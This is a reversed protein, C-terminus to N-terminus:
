DDTSDFPLPDIRGHIWAESKFNRRKLSGFGIAYEPATDMNGDSVAFVINDRSGHGRLKGVPVIDSLALGSDLAVRAYLVKAEPDEAANAIDELTLMPGHKRRIQEVTACLPQRLFRSTPHNFIGTDATDIITETRRMIAYTADM